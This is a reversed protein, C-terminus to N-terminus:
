TLLFHLATHMYTLTLVAFAERQWWAAHMSLTSIHLCPCDAAWCQYFEATHTRHTWDCGDNWQIEERMESGGGGGDRECEEAVDYQWWFLRFYPWCYRNCLVKWPFSPLAAWLQEFHHTGFIVQSTKVLLLFFPTLRLLPRFISLSLLFASQTLRLSFKSLFLRMGSKLRRHYSGAVVFTVSPLM